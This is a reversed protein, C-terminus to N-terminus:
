RSLNSKERMPVITNEYDKGDYNEISQTQVYPIESSSNKKIYELFPDMYKVFEDKTLLSDNKLYELYSDRLIRVQGENSKTAAEIAAIREDYTRAIYLITDATERYEIQTDKIDEIDDKMSDFYSFFGWVTLFGAATM